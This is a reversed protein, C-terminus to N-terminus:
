VFVASMSIEENEFEPKLKFWTRKPRDPAPIYKNEVCRKCNHPDADDCKRLYKCKVEDYVTCNASM